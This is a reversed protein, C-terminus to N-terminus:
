PTMVLNKDYQQASKAVHPLHHEVQRERMDLTYALGPVSMPTGRSLADFVRQRDTKNHGTAM